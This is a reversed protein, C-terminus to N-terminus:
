LTGHMYLEIDQPWAIDCLISQNHHTVAPENSLLQPGWLQDSDESSICTNHDSKWSTRSQMLDLQYLASNSSDRAHPPWAPVSGLQLQTMHMHLDHQYLASNPSDCAHPPWASVSGLQLQWMCTSTLSICLRTPATDHAHPPRASVSGLQLQWTCTSTTSTCQVFCILLINIFIFLFVHNKQNQQLSKFWSKCWHNLDFSKFWVVRHYLASNSSHCTCTSTTSACLRTPATDHPHPPRAPVSGLQLQTM